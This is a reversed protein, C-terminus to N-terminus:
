GDWLLTFIGTFFFFFYSCYKEFSQSLLWCGGERREKEIDFSQQLKFRFPSTPHLLFEELKKM